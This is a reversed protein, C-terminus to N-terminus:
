VLGFRSVICLDWSRLLLALVLALAPVNVKLIECCTSVQAHEEEPFSAGGTGRRGPKRPRGLVEQSM